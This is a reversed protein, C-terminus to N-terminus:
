ALIIAGTSRLPLPSNGGIFAFCPTPEQQRSLKLYGGTVHLATAATLSPLCCGPMKHCDKEALLPSLRFCTLAKIPASAIGGRRSKYPLFFIGRDRVVILM